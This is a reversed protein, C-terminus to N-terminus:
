CEALRLPFRRDQRASRQINVARSRVRTPGPREHHRIPPTGQDGGRLRGRRAQRRRQHRRPPRLKAVPRAWITCYWYTNSGTHTLAKGPGAWSREVVSWGGAYEERTRPTHLAKLTEPKVLTVGGVSGQLHLSAFRAWDAVSCHITGAPGMAPPNDEYVAEVLNGSARHGWAQDSQGKGGPPGFGASAMKLPEFVRRRMLDEWPTRTAEEAMMGALVFGVNSYSYTTGPKHEPAAQLARAM